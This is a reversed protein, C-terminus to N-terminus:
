SGVPQACSRRCAAVASAQPQELHHLDTRPDALQDELACRGVRDAGDGDLLAHARQALVPQRLHEIASGRDVLHQTDVPPSQM